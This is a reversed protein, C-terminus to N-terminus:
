SSKELHERLESISEFRVTGQPLEAEISGDVYLTYGMGDIVGSKLIAVSRTEETAAADESTPVARVVIDPAVPAAGGVDEGNAGAAAPSMRSPTRSPASWASEFDDQESRGAETRGAETRGAADLWPPRGPSVSPGGALSGRPIGPLGPPEARDAKVEVVEAEVKVEAAPAVAEPEPALVPEVRRVTEFLHPGEDAAVSVEPAAPRLDAVPPVVPPIVPPVPEPRAESRAEPKQPFAIGARTAPRNTAPRRPVPTLASPLDPAHDSGHDAAHDSGHGADHGAYRAHGFDLPRAALADAIHRLQRVALGVAIVILGGVVATTGALILTNGLSFEKVPIGYTIMGLGALASLVGLIILLIAM